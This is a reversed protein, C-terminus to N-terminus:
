AICSDATPSCFTTGGAGGQRFHLTVRTYLLCIVHEVLLLLLGGTGGFLFINLVTLIMLNVIVRVLMTITVMFVLTARIVDDNDNAGIDVLRLAAPEQQVCAPRGGAAGPQKLVTISIISMLMIMILIVTTLMLMLMLMTM